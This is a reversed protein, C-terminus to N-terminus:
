EFLLSAGRCSQTLKNDALDNIDQTTKKIMENTNQLLTVKRGLEAAEKRLASALQDNLKKGLEAEILEKYADHECKLQGEQPHGGGTQVVEAATVFSSVNASRQVAQVVINSEIAAETRSIKTAPLLPPRYHEGGEDFGDDLCPSRSRVSASDEAGPPAFPHLSRRQQFQPIPVLVQTPTGITGSGAAGTDATEPSSDQVPDAM